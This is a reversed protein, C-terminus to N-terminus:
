DAGQLQLWRKRYFYHVESAKEVYIDNIGQHRIQPPKKGGYAYYHDLIYNKDAVEILKHFGDEDSEREAGIEAVSKTSGNWFVLITSVRNRSCLVAWDFQNRKAFQGRIVNHPETLGFVQPITCGRKELYSIVSKPLQSFVAPKLRLLSNDSNSHAKHHIGFRTENENLQSYENSSNELLDSPRSVGTLGSKDSEIQRPSSSPANSNIIGLSVALVGVGFTLLSVAVRYNFKSM